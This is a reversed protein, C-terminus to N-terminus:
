NALDATLAEAENRMDPLVAGLLIATRVSDLADEPRVLIAPPPKRGMRQLAALVDAIVARRGDLSARLKREDDDLSRLRAEAAAIREEVLRVRGATEILSANLKRRDEGLTEVERQLKETTEAARKQQNRLSELEQTRQKITDAPSAAPAPSQAFSPLGANLAMLGAAVVARGPPHHLSLIMGLRRITGRFIISLSVARQAGTLRLRRALDTDDADLDM